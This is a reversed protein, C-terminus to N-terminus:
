FAIRIGSECDRSRILRSRRSRITRRRGDTARARGGPWVRKRPTGNTRWVRRTLPRGGSSAIQRQKDGNMSAFGRDQKAMGPDYAHIIRAPLIFRSSSCLIQTAANVERTGAETLSTAAMSDCASHFGVPLLPTDDSTRHDRRAHQHSQEPQQEKPPEYAGHERM